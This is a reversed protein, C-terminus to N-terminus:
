GSTFHIFSLSRLFLIVLKPFVLRMLVVLFSLPTKEM